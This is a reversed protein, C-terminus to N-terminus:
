PSFAQWYLQRVEGPSLGQGLYSDGTRIEFHLHVQTGPATLSEPTGSEGVYGIIAGQGVKAGISIGDAVGSLHAYRTVVGDGHEIWVQRGRFADKVAPDESEGGEVRDFLQALTDGSLDQYAWDARVVTGARAALVETGWGIATCSDSEYFDVGEHVGQRYARPAGPMLDDSEPLCAGVIPYAFGSIEQPASETPVVPTETGPPTPGNSHAPTATQAPAATEDGGRIFDVIGGLSPADDSGFAATILAAAVMAVVVISVVLRM